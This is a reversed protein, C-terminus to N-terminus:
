ARLSLFPLLIYTIKLVQLLFLQDFDNTRPNKLRLVFNRTLVLQWEKAWQCILALDECLLVTECLESFALYIRVNDAFIKLQNEFLTLSTM